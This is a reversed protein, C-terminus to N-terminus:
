ALQKLDEVVVRLEKVFAEKETSAFKLEIQSTALETDVEVKPRSGIIKELELDKLSKTLKEMLSTRTNIESKLITQRNELLRKQTKKVNDEKYEIVTAAVRGGDGRKGRIYGIKLRRWAKEKASGKSGEPRDFVKKLERKGAAEGAITKLNIQGSIPSTATGASSLVPPSFCGTSNPSKCDEAQGTRNLWRRLPQRVFCYAKEDGITPKFVIVDAKRRGAISVGKIPDSVNRCLCDAEKKTLRQSDDEHGPKFEKGILACMAEIDNKGGTYEFGYFKLIRRYDAPKLDTKKALICFKNYDDFANGTSGKPPPDTPSPITNNNGM